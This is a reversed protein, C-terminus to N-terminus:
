ERMAQPKQQRWRRFERDSGIFHSIIEPILFEPTIKDQYLHEYYHCYHELLLSQEGLLIIKYPQNNPTSKKLKIKM